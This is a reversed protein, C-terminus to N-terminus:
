TFKVKIFIRSEVWNTDVDDSATVNTINECLKKPTTIVTCSDGFVPSPAYCNYRRKKGDCKLRYLQCTEESDGICENGLLLSCILLCVNELRTSHTHTYMIVVATYYLKHTHRCQSTSRLQVAM